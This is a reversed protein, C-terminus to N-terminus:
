IGLIGRFRAIAGTLGHQSALRALAEADSVTAPLALPLHPGLPASSVPLVVRRAAELYDRADDLRRRIGPALDPACLIADISGYRTMLAAATKEGIGPVGPLGDSPDGRLLSFDGYARGPIAYRQAIWAEDVVELSKVGRVPYLARVDPDRVLSFLDRDGSLIEVPEDAAACLTAIVDDAEYGAAGVVALGLAAFVARGVPEQELVPDSEADGEDAVRHAKYAPIVEARFAPRWDDDVALAVARPRRDAIVRALMGLCGHVGNAAISSPTAHYARYLLSSYDVLLLM